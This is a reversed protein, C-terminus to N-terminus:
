KKVEQDARILDKIYGNKNDVLELAKIIDKDTEKNLRLCITLTNEKNYKSSARIQAKSTKIM